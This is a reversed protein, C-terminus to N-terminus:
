RLGEFEFPYRAIYRFSSSSAVFSLYLLAILYMNIEKFLNSLMKLSWHQM